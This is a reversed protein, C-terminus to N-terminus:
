CVVGVHDDPAIMDVASRKKGGQGLRHGARDQGVICAPRQGGTAVIEAPVPRKREQVALRRDGIQGILCGVLTSLVQRALVICALALLGRGEQVRRDIPLVDFLRQEIVAVLTDSIEHGLMHPRRQRQWRRAPAREVSDRGVLHRQHARGQHDGGKDEEPVSVEGEAQDGGPDHGKEVRDIALQGPHRQLGRAEPIHHIVPDVQDMRREPIPGPRDAAGGDAIGQAVAAPRQSDDDDAIDQLTDLLAHEQRKEAHFDM